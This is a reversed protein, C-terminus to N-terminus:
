RTVELRYDEVRPLRDGPNRCVWGNGAPDGRGMGERQMTM